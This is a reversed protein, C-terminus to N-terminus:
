TKRIVQGLDKLENQYVIKNESGSVFLKNFFNDNFLTFSSLRSFIGLFKINIM